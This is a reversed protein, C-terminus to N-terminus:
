EALSTPPILVDVTQVVVCFEQHLNALVVQHIDDAEWRRGDFSARDFTATADSVVFVQFGLEAAHRATADVCLNTTFGVVVLTDTGTAKLREELETGVFASNATKRIVTEGERPEGVTKFQAGVAGKRFPSNSKSSEHRAHVIPRKENRWKEVLHRINEEAKPNNRKGWVPDDFGKQVGVLLLTAKEAWSPLTADNFRLSSRQRLLRCQEDTAELTWRNMSRGLETLRWRGAVKEIVPATEALKQLQRSIVSVDRAMKEALDALSNAKEFVLLLDCQASDLAFRSTM